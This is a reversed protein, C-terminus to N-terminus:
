QIKDVFFIHTISLAIHHYIKQYVYFELLYPDVNKDAPNSKLYPVIHKPLTLGLDDSYKLSSPPKGARYHEKLVNILEMVKSNPKYFGFNVVLLIPRLYLAFARSSRGYCQWKALKKDFSSGTIFQALQEFQQKPLITYAEKSFEAYTFEPNNEKSPFWRLFQALKPLEIILESGHKQFAMNAYASGADLIARVHYMLSVILNDM